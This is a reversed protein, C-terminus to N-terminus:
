QQLGRKTRCMMAERGDRRETEWGECDSVVRPDDSM